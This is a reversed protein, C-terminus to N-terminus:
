ALKKFKLNYLVKYISLKIFSKIRMFFVSSFWSETKRTGIASSLGEQKLFEIGKATWLGKRVSNVVSILPRTQDREIASFFPEPLSNSRVSGNYEFDWASEGAHLLEILLKRKWFGVTLGARYRGGKPVIGINPMDPQPFYSAALSVLLHRGAILRVLAANHAQAWRLLSNVANTDVKRKLFLDEVWVIVWSYHLQNLFEILSSSYDTKPKVSLMTVRPDDYVAQNTGLFIPYPCDPWYKFFSHFFPKWLDRYGDWSPVLICTDVAPEQGTDKLKFNM